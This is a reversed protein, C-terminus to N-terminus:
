ENLFAEVPGKGVRLVVPTDDSLDIVSTPDFGCHEGDIIADLQHGISDQISWADTLPLDEGPLILSTTVLPGDLAQLLAQSIACGPVRLGVTKRKQQLLRKPTRRTAKLIFTYPGPTHAKLMRYTPNDVQAWQALDALDKCMLTLHHKETLKRLQRMRDIARAEGGACALAYASDTPMAIVGGQQLIDVARQVLRNQPNVPHISLLQTM